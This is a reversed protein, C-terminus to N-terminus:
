DQKPSGAPVPRLILEAKTLRFRIILRFVEGVYKIRALGRFSEFDRYRKFIPIGLTPEGLVGGAFLLHGDIHMTNTLADFNLRELFRRSYMVFGSHWEKRRYGTALSELASLLKTTLYAILPTEELQGFRLKSRYGYVIAYQSNVYALFNNLLVPPYQGDGHLMIVWRINRNELVLRYAFKQSGAYGLNQPLTILYILGPLSGDQNLQTVIEATDDTSCNDVVM